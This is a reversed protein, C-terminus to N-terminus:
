PPTARCFKSPFQALNSAAINTWNALRPAVSINFTQESRIESCPMGNLKGFMVPGPNRLARAAGDRRALLYLQNRSLAVLKVQQESRCCLTGIRPPLASDRPAAIGPAAASAGSLRRPIPCASTASGRANTSSCRRTWSPQGGHDAPADVALAARHASAAGPIASATPAPADLVGRASIPGLM